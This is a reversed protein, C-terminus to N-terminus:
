EVAVMASYRPAYTFASLMDLDLKKFLRYYYIMNMVSTLVSLSIHGCSAVIEAAQFFREEVQGGGKRGLAALRPLKFLSPAGLEKLIQFLLVQESNFFYIFQQSCFNSSFKTKDLFLNFLSLITWVHHKKIKQFSKDNNKGPFLRFHLIM